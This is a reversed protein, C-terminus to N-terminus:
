RGRQCLEGGCKTCRKTEDSTVDSQNHSNSPELTYPTQCDRCSYRGGLRQVLEPEPVDIHVVKDLGRSRRALAQELAEAQNHSRPFGDLIFGDESNISLVMDLIIDITMEDPVLLGQNVFEATKLGLPTQEDLHRRFLDGSSIHVM